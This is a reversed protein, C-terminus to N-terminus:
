MFTMFEEGAFYPGYLLIRQIRFQLLFFSSYKGKITYVLIGLAVLASLCACCLLMKSHM